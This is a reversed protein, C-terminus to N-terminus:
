VPSVKLDESQHPCSLHVIELCSSSCSVLVLFICHISAKVIIISVINAEVIAVSGM